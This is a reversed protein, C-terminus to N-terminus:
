FRFRGSNHFQTLPMAREGVICRLCTVPQLKVLKLKAMQSHVRLDRWKPCVTVAYGRDGGVHPIVDHAIGDDDLVTYVHPPITM